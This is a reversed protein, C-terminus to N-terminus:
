QDKYNKQYRPIYKNFATDLMEDVILMKESNPLEFLKTGGINALAALLAATLAVAALSITAITRIRFHM